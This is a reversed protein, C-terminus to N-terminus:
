YPIADTLVTNTYVILEADTKNPRGCPRVFNLYHIIM